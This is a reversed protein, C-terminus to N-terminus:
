ADQKLTKNLRRTYGDQRQEGSGEGSRLSDDLNFNPGFIYIYIYIYIHIYTYIYIFIYVDINYLQQSAQKSEEFINNTPLFASKNNRFYSKENLFNM